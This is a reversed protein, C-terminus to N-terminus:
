SSSCHLIRREFKLSSDVSSMLYLVAIVEVINVPTLSPSSIFSSHDSISKVFTITLILLIGEFKFMCYFEVLQYNKM